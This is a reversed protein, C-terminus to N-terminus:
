SHENDLRVRLTVIELLLLIKNRVSMWPPLQLPRLNESGFKMMHEGAVHCPELM